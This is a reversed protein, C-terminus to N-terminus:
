EVTDKQEKTPQPISAEVWTTLGSTPWCGRGMSQTPSLQEPSVVRGVEQQTAEPCPSKPRISRHTHMHAHTHEHLHMHMGTYSIHMHMCTHVTSHLACAYVRTHVHACRVWTWPTYMYTTHTDMHTDIHSDRHCTYVHPHMCASLSDRHCSQIRKHTGRTDVREYLHM